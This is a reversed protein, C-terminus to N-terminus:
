IRKKIALLVSGIMAPVLLNVMWIFATALILEEAPALHGMFNLAVSGRIGLESFAFSPLITQIFYVQALGGYFNWFPTQTLFQLVFAFQTAFLLYRLASWAFIQWKIKMPITMVFEFYPLLDIRKLYLKIWPILLDIRFILLIMLLMLAISLLIPILYTAATKNIAAISLVGWSLAGAFLTIFLQSMSCVLSAPIAYSRIEERLWFWRGLFEGSRNPTFMSVGAGALVSKYAASNSLTTLQGISQKWKLSELYWNITALLAVLAYGIWEEQMRSLLVEFDQRKTQQLKVILYTLSALVIVWRLIHM